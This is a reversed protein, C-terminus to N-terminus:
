ASTAGHAARCHQMEKRVTDPELNGPTIGSSDKLAQLIGLAADYRKCAEGDDAVAAASGPPRTKARADLAKALTYNAVGMASKMSADLRAGEALRGFMAIAENGSRVADDLEGSERLLDGLNTTVLAQTGRSDMDRPDRAALQGLLAIAGRLEQAAAKLDGSFALASGVNSREGALKRMVDARDPAVAHLRELLAVAQRFSVLAARAGAPSNDSQSLYQGRLDDSVSLQLLADHDDPSKALVAQLMAIAQDSSKLYAPL